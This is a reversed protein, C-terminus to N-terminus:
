IHILSLHEFHSHLPFSQCRQVVCQVLALDCFALCDLLNPVYGRVEETRDYRVFSPDILATAVVIM